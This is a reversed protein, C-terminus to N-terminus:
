ATLRQMHAYYWERSEVIVEGLTPWEEASVEEIGSERPPDATWDFRHCHHYPRHEHPSDYRLVNGINRVGVHYRYDVTEVYTVDRRPRAALLKRVNIYIGGVCEITGVIGVWGPYAWFEINDTEIFKERQYRDMVAHHIAWYQPFLPVAQHKAAM